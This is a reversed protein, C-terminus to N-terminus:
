WVHKVHSGGDGFLSWMHAVLSGCTLWWAEVHSGGNGFLSWMHPLHTCVKLLPDLITQLPGDRKKQVRSTSPTGYIPTTGGGFHEFNCVSQRFGRALDAGANLNIWVALKLPECQICDQTTPPPSPTSYSLTFGFFLSYPISGVAQVLTHLM